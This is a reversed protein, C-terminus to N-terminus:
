HTYMEHIQPDLFKINLLVEDIKSREEKVSIYHDILWFYKNILRPVLLPKSTAKTQIETKLANIAQKLHGLELPKLERKVNFAGQLVAHVPLWEKREAANYGYSDLVRLVEQILHSRLCELEVAAAGLYFAERFLLRAKRGENTMEYCDAMEALASADDKQLVLAEELRRLASDFDGNAKLARAAKVLLAPRRAEDEFPLQELYSSAATQYAFERIADMGEDIPADLHAAFRKEFGSLERLLWDARQEPIKFEPLRATREKWFVACKLASLVRAEEFDVALAKAAVLEAAPFEGSRFFVWASRLCEELVSLPNQGPSSITNETAAKM